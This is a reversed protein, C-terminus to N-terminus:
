TPFCRGDKEIDAPLVPRLLRPLPDTTEQLRSMAEPDHSDRFTWYQRLWEEDTM